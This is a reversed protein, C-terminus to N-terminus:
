KAPTFRLVFFHYGPVTKSICLYNPRANLSLSLPYTNANLLWACNSLSTDALRWPADAHGPHRRTSMVPQRRDSLPAKFFCELPSASLFTQNHLLRPRPLGRERSEYHLFARLNVGFLNFLISRHLRKKWLVLIVRSKFHHMREKITYTHLKWEVAWIKHARKCFNITIGGNIKSM